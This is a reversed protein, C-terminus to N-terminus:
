RPRSRSREPTSFLAWAPTVQRTNRGSNLYLGFKFYNFDPTGTTITRGQYAARRQGDIYIEALGDAGSSWRVHAEFRHWGGVLDRMNGLAIRQAARCNGPGRYTNTRLYLVSQGDPVEIDLNPCERNHWYAFSYNGGGAQRRGLPFDSPLYMDWSYWAEQPQSQRTEFLQARVSNFDCDSMGNDYRRASCAGPELRFMHVRSSPASGTPDRVRQYAGHANIPEEAFNGFGQAWLPGAAITAVLIILTILRM